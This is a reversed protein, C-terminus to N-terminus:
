MEPHGLILVLVLSKILTSMSKLFIEYSSFCDQKATTRSIKIFAPNAEKMVVNFIEYEVFNFPLEHIMIMHAIVERMRANDFKWDQVTSSSVFKGHLVKLKLQGKDVVKLKPCYQDIHRKMPTTTGDQYKKVKEGCHICEHISTGNKLTIERFHEWVSSTHKRRKKTFPEERKLSHNQNLTIERFHEWVVENGEEDVIVVDPNNEMTPTDASSQFESSGFPSHLELYPDEDSFFPSRSSVNSMKLTRVRAQKRAEEQGM